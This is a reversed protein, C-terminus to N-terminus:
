WFEPLVDFISHRDDTWRVERAQDLSKAEATTYTFDMFPEELQADFRAADILGLSPFFFFYLSDVAGERDAAVQGPNAEVARADLNLHKAHTALVPFLNIFRNSIHIALVGNPVAQLYSEIAERTLLHPPVSDGSFADVVILDFSENSEEIGLRGDQHRFEVRAASDGVFTFLSDAITFSSPDIEWFVFHDGERGYAALTGVGLGVVGIKLDQKNTQLYTIM